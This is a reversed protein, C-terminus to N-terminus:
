EEQLFTHRTNRWELFIRKHVGRRHLVICAAGALSTKWTLKPFLTVSLRFTHSAPWIVLPRSNWMDLTDPPFRSPASYCEAEGFFNINININVMSHNVEAAGTSSGAVLFVTQTPYNLLKKKLLRLKSHRCLLASCIYRHCGGNHQANQKEEVALSERQVM